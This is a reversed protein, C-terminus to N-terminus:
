MIIWIYQKREEAETIRRCVLISINKRRYEANNEFLDSYLMLLSNVQHFSFSVYGLITEWILASAIHVFDNYYYLFVRCTNIFSEYDVYHFIFQFYVCSALQCFVFAIHGIIIRIIWKRLREYKKPSGIAEITDDVLSLEHLCMKLEKL